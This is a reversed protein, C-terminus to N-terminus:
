VHRASCERLQSEVGSPVPGSLAGVQSSASKRWEPVGILQISDECGLGGRGTTPLDDHATM